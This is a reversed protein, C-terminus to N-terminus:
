PGDILGNEVLKAVKRLITPVMYPNVGEFEPTVAGNEELNIIIRTRPREMQQETQNPENMHDRRM